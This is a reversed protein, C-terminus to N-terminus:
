RCLGTSRRRAGARGGHATATPRRCPFWRGGVQCPMAISLRPRANGEPDAETSAPDPWGSTRSACQQAHRCPPLELVLCAVESGPDPGPEFRGLRVNQGSESLVARRPEGATVQRETRHQVRDLGTVELPVAAAGDVGVRAFAAVRLDGANGSLNGALGLVGVDGAALWGLAKVGEPKLEAFSDHGGYFAVFEDDADPM